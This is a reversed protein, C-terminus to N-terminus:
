ANVRANDPDYFTPKVVRVAVVEGQDFALMREGGRKLGGRLRALGVARGLTPSFHASTVYGESGSAPSQVLHAGTPLRARSDETQIGVLQLRGERRYEPLVLAGRGVFDGAKREILKAWGLDLPTTTSDTDAGIHLYGKETRMIDLADIGYPRIAESAGAELLANWLEATRDAPVNIEYSCEGTFSVRWIRAPLGAVEGFRFTM